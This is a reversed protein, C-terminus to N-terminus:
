GTIRSFMSQLKKRWGRGRVPATLFRFIRSAPTIASPLPPPPSQYLIAGHNAGRSICDYCYENCKLSSANPRRGAYGGKMFQFKSYFDNTHWCHLTYYDTVENDSTSQFDFKHTKSIKLSSSNLVLHGAYMSAVGSYWEPWSGEHESFHNILLYKVYKITKVGSEIMTSSTAFWTSGINHIHQDPLNLNKLIESLRRRATESSYGGNGVIIEDDACQISHLGPCVFTDVDLRLCYKYSSIIEICQHDIFPAFSNVFGYGDGSYVYQFDKQSSLEEMGVFRCHLKPIKGEIPTPGAVLFDYKRYLDTKRVLSYWLGYFQDIFHQQDPIYVVIVSDKEM